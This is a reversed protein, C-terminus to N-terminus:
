LCSRRPTAIRARAYTLGQGRAVWGAEERATAPLRRAHRLGPGDRGPRVGTEKWRAAQGNSGRGATTAPSAAVTEREASATEESGRAAIGRDIFFGLGMLLAPAAGVSLAHEALTDGCPGAILGVALGFLAFAGLVVTAPHKAQKHQM